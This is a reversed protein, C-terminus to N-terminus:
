WQEHVVNHGSDVTFVYPKNTDYQTDPYFTSVRIKNESALYYITVPKGTGQNTGTYLTAVGASHLSALNSFSDIYPGPHGTGDSGIFYAQLGDGVPALQVQTAAHTVIMNAPPWSPAPMTSGGGNGTEPPMTVEGSGGNGTEPPMTTEGNGGGTNTPPPTNATNGNGNNAPNNVPPPLQGGGVIEQAFAAPALATALVLTLLLVTALKLRKRGFM